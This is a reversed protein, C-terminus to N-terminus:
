EKVLQEKKVIMYTATGQAVLGGRSDTVVAEGLATKKGVHVIRAEATIEGKSFPKIFNIKMEITTITKGRDVMGLLAMGIASDAASFLAGGHAIELANCIKKDFPLRIKAWGKKIDMLEMGLLSWFHSFKHVRKVLHERFDPELDKYENM